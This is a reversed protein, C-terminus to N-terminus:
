PWWDITLVCADLGTEADFGTARATVTACLNSGPAQDAAHVAAAVQDAVAGADPASAAWCEATITYRLDDDAPDGLLTAGQGETALTYVVYPAPADVTIANLAIRQGVLAALGAHSALAARFAQAATDPAPATM